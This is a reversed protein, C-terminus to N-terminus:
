WWHLTYFCTFELFYTTLLNFKSSENKLLAYHTPCCNTIWVLDISRDLVQMKMLLKVM